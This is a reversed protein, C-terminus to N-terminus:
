SLEEFLEDHMKNYSDEFIRLIVPPADAQLRTHIKRVAKTYWTQKYPLSGDPKQCMLIDDNENQVIAVIPVKTQM